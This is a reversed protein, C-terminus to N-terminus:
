DLFLRQTGRAVHSHYEAQYQLVMRAARERFESSYRTTENM